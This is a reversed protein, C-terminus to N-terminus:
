SYYSLLFVTTVMANVNDNNVPTNNVVLGAAPQGPALKVSVMSTLGLRPIIITFPM